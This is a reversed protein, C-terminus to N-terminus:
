QRVVQSGVSLLSGFRRSSSYRGGQALWFLPLSTLVTEKGKNRDFCVKQRTYAEEVFRENM